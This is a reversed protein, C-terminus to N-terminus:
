EPYNLTLAMRVFYADDELIDIISIRDEDVTYFIYYHTRQYKVRDYHFATRYGTRNRLSFMQDQKYKAIGHIREIIYYTADAFVPHQTEQKIKRLSEVAAPAYRIEREVTAM